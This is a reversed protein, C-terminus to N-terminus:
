RATVTMQVPSSASTGNANFARVRYFYITGPRLRMVTRASVNGVSLNKYGTVYTSFDSNTSVDLRYGTAGSVTLWNAQFSTRTVNTALNAAPSQPIAVRTTISRSASNPGIGGANYARVRYYYTTSAMLGTLAVTRVNGMDRDQDGSVFRTFARDTAVDLRYGLATNVSSWSANFGNSSIGTATYAAPAPPAAISTTLTVVNSDAGTGAANYARVRYFYTQSASLGTVAFSLTKGVDRNAYDAIFSNFASSTSVDLRYGTADTSEEWNATFSAGTINSAAHAIPTVPTESKGQDQNGATSVGLATIADTIQIRPKVLGFDNIPVGTSQLATLVEDVDATPKASKLVAWAGAVHPTAMSTGSWAAFGAGIVSSTISSGPALLDLFQANNSFSSLEDSKTTSGVTIATSVCGPASIANTYGNNGSAIVTAIRAARLRDIMPKSPDTDCPSTYVEGGLSLNAAAIQYSDRLADVRELGKIIDSTYAMVCPSGGCASSSFESYIQIAILNADRAVGSFNTGRGAAIGAVHTGHDCGALSSRCNVGSNRATSEAVRGPCLSASGQSAYNSSYCAESVVKGTLFPHNQDVGTDLIAITQEQGSYTEFTGDAGAGILPLSEVLAPPYAVDEFVDLVEPDDLLDRVDLADAQMALGQVRSFQKVQAGSRDRGNRLGLRDLMRQQSDALAAQFSSEASSQASTRSKFRVIVPVSGRELARELLAERRHWSRADPTDATITSDTASEWDLASFAPDTLDSPVGAYASLALTLSIASVLRRWIKSRHHTKM